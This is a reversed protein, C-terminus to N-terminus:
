YNIKNIINERVGVLIVILSTIFLILPLIPAGILKNSISHGTINISTLIISVVLGIEGTTIFIKGLNGFEDETTKELQNQKTPHTEEILKKLEQIENKLDKIEKRNKANNLKDEARELKRKYSEYGKIAYKGSGYTVGTTTFAPVPHEHYFGLTKRIFGRRTIPKSKKLEQTKPTSKKGRIKNYLNKPNIKDASEKLGGITNEYSSKINRLANRETEYIRGIINGLFGYATGAGAVKAGYIGKQLAKRRTYKKIDKDEELM